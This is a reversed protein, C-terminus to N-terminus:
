ELSEVVQIHHEAVAQENATITGVFFEGRLVFPLWLTDAPWMSEYPLETSSFWQPRMEDSEQPEGVWSDSVFIRCDHEFTPDDQDFFRLRGLLVPHHPTVNIEEICERVAAARFTEGDEVKGGVGNWFGKGFGRKKYALLLQNNQQLFLVTVRKM